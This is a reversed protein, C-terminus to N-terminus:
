RFANRLRVLLNPLWSGTVAPITVVWEGDLKLSHAKCIAEADEFNDAYFDFRFWHGRHYYRGLFKTQPNYDTSM